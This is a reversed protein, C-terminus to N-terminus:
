FITLLSFFVILIIFLINFVKNSEALKFKFYFVQLVLSIVFWCVYNFVPITENQWKWFDSEVAVPEMLFDLGTMLLAAFTAKWFDGIKLNNVISASSVVLLGWNLGIVWPVGYIKAGLNKGYSYNGFLLGTNIGIWEVTMGVVFCLLLFLAFRLFQSKRALLIVKFSLILNFFSLSLFIGKISPLLLGITGVMYFIILIAILIPEKFRISKM